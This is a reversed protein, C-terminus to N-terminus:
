DDCVYLFDEELKHKKKYGLGVLLGELKDNTKQSVTTDSNDWPTNLTNECVIVPRYKQIANIAGSLIQYEYTEADLMLLDLCPLNLADVTLTPVTLKKGTKHVRNEHPANEMMHCGANDLMCEILMHEGCKNSLAANFKKVNDQQCNQVLIQFM